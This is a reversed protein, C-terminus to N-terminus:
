IKVVNRCSIRFNISSNQSIHRDDEFNKVKFKIGLDKGKEKWKELEIALCGAEELKAELVQDQELKTQEQEKLIMQMDKIM